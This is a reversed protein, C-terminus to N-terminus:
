RASRSVATPGFGFIEIGRAVLEEAQDPAQIHQVMWADRGEDKLSQLLGVM